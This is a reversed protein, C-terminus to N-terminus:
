GGTWVYGPYSQCFRKKTVCIHDSVLNSVMKTNGLLVQGSTFWTVFTGFRFYGKAVTPQLYPAVTFQVGAQTASIQGILVNSSSVNVWKSGNWQEVYYIVAVIQAGSYGPSRYVTPGKDGYLTFQTQGYPMYLDGVFIKPLAVGGAKGQTASYSWAFAAQDTALVAIGLIVAVISHIWRRYFVLRKIQISMTNM